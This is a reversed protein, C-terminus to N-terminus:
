LSGGGDDPTNQDNQDAPRTTAVPVEALVDSKSLLDYNELVGLHEIMQFQDDTTLAPKSPPVRALWVSLAVLLAISFALRPQPVLWQFWRPRPEAAIRQRLRADFGFSPEQVPVEDLVTWLKRFEEARKRCGECALLHEEVELREASNARRDLYAILEKSVDECKM